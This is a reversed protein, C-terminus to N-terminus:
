DMCCLGVKRKGNFAEDGETDHDWVESSSGLWGSTRAIHFGGGLNEQLSCVHAGRATCTRAAEPFRCQRCGLFISDSSAAGVLSPFLMARLEDPSIDREYWRFDDMFAKTGARWPDRGIHLDGTVSPVPGELIVESDRIGNMYLRLVSGARIAAVHTWRRMPLLGKADLAGDGGETRATVRLHLRRENPALLLAPQLEEARSGRSFITRWSGISDEMLYIWFAITFSEAGLEEAKGRVTRYTKGDFKASAGKGMVGPGSPLPTLKFGSDTLHRGKGSDDVPLRKDFQYWILLDPPTVTRGIIYKGGSADTLCVSRPVELCEDFPTPEKASLGIPAAAPAPARACM